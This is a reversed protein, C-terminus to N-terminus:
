TQFLVTVQFLVYKQRNKENSLFLFTCHFYRKCIVSPPYFMPNCSCQVAGLSLLLFVTTSRPPVIFLFAWSDSVFGRTYGINHQRLRLVM